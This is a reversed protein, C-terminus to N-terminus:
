FEARLGAFIRRGAAPFFYPTGSDVYGSTEYRVDALNDAHLDLQLSRSGALAGLDVRVQAGLVTHPEITRHQYGAAQAAAPDLRNDETNDLYIRGVSTLTAAM